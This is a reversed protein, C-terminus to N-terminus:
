FIKKIDTQMFELVLFIYTINSLDKPAIIDFIKTTFQNNPM